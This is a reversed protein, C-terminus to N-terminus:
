SHVKKKALESVKQHNNESFWLYRFNSMNVFSTRLSLCSEIKGMAAIKPRRM